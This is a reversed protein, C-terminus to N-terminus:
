IHILSLSVPIIEGYSGDELKEQNSMPLGGFELEGFREGFEINEQVSLHQDPFVLFGYELFASYIEMFQEEALDSLCVDTVVAGFTKNPIAQISPLSM